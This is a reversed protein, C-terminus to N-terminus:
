RAAVGAPAAPLAAHEEGYIKRMTYIHYLTCTPLADTGPLLEELGGILMAPVTDWRHYFFLLYLMQIPAFIADSGETAVAGPGLLYGLYSSSGVLDMCISLVFRTKDWPTRGILRELAM